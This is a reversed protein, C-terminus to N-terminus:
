RYLTNDLMVYKLAQQWVIRDTIHDLNELYRVLPIRWDNPDTTMTEISKDLTRSIGFGGTESIPSDPKASSPEAFYAKANYM